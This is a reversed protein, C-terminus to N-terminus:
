SEELHAMLGARLKESDAWDVVVSNLGQWSAYARLTKALAKTLGATIRIGPEL